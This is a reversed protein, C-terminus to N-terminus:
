GALRFAMAGRTVDLPIPTVVDDFCYSATASAIRYTSTNMDYGLCVYIADHKVGVPAPRSPEGAGIRSGYNAAPSFWCPTHDRGGPLPLTPLRFAAAACQRHKRKYPHASLDATIRLLPLPREASQPGLCHHSHSPHGLRHNSLSHRPRRLVALSPPLSIQQRFISLAWTQEHVM